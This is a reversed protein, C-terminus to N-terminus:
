QLCVCVCVGEPDSFPDELIVTHYIRIDQFPRGDKDCYGENIKTLVDMGEAVEGFVTHKGDLYDLGAGLTFLFQSGHYGEGNNVMSILGPNLHKLRPMEELEFYRYTDGKVVGWVSRGGEGTGTPDGTQALVNRQVSHFLSFNYFKIKCLKLFNISCKPREEVYLDVVIDGLSTEILVSM